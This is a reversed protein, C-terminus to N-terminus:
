GPLATMAPEAARRSGADARMGPIRWIAEIAIAPSMKSRGARREHFVIPVEQVRLGAREARFSAEVQFAYGEAAFADLGIARLSAARFCKFGGTLDRISSGLVFRAYAGGARSLLQRGMSWGRAGGGPVYRSGIVVDAGARAADLLRPLDAPDHSFDADMELVYDAGAALACRFGSVYARALGGKGPRHLVHVGAHRAALRDAIRGTGDPSDDDVVLISSAVDPAGAAMAARVAAVLSALNEAENYTPIVIWARTM